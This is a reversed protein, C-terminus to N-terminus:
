MGVPHMLYDLEGDFRFGQAIAELDLDSLGWNIRSTIEITQDPIGSADLSQAPGNTVMPERPAAETFVNMQRTEEAADIGLHDCLRDLSEKAKGAAGYLCHHEQLVNRCLMLSQFSTSSKGKQAVIRAHITASIYTAYSLMYPASSIAFHQSYDRLIQVIQNAAATCTNISEFASAPNNPREDNGTFLPRKSLIILVNFLALLCFAQPLLVAQSTHHLYDLEPPLNQRWRCLESNINDSIGESQGRMMQASESYLECLIRDIIVSLECLKTLLSVNLSPVTPTPTLQKYTLAQFPDLEDYEDLFKLSAKINNHRLLPPRCYAGWLVRKRIELEEASMNEGSAAVHLGLDIIMNFANGAYLWSLSREDCRSFLSNSMILLAQITTVKSKDFNDRLLDTFRQRFRWGATTIDDPNSCIESRPSHKSVTFLIANLLLKSFYPGACAMDRMFVPRYIIQATYLQRSWYISLLHMGIEPDVGDFDLKGTTLNLPELQRQRATQVFLLNKSWNESAPDNPLDINGVGDGSRTRDDYATSTPGHYLSTARQNNHDSDPVEPHSNSRLSEGDQPKSPAVRAQRPSIPSLSSTSQSLFSDESGALQNDRLRANELELKKQRCFLCAAAARTRRLPM